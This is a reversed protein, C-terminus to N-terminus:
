GTLQLSAIVLFIAALLVVILLLDILVMGLRRGPRRYAIKRRARRIVALQIRDRWLSRM